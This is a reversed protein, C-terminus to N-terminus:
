FKKKWRYMDRCSFERCMKPRISYITCKGTEYDHWKCRFNGDDPKWEFGFFILWKVVEFTTPPIDINLGTLHLRLFGAKHSIYDFNLDLFDATGCFDVHECCEGTCNKCSRM